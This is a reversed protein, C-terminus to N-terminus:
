EEMLSYFEEFRDEKVKRADLKVLFTRNNYDLKYVNFHLYGKRRKRAVNDINAQLTMDKGEGLPSVRLFELAEPNNWAYIAAEVDYDHHCHKLLIKRSKNSRKLVTEQISSVEEKDYAPMLNEREVEEKKADAKRATVLKADARNICANIYPCNYCDKARNHFTTGAKNTPTGNYFQCSSCSDPFYPSDDSFVNGTKGPNDKLGPQPDNEPTDYGEPLKTVPEDTSSLSCKCNWRDGPRHQSWFPDDVPRITGWFPM